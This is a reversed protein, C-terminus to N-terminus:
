FELFQYLTDWTGFKFIAILLLGNKVFLKKKLFINEKESDDIIVIRFNEAQNSSM